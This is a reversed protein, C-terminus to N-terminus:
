EVKSVGVRVIISICCSRRPRCNNGTSVRRQDEGVNQRYDCKIERDGHLRVDKVTVVLYLGSRVPSLNLFKFM